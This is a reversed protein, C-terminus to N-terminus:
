LSSCSSCGTHLLGAGAPCLGDCLGKCRSGGPVRSRSGCHQCPRSSLGPAHPGCLDKSGRLHPTAGSGTVSMADSASDADCFQHQQGCRSECAACMSCPHGGAHTAGQDSSQLHTPRVTKYEAAAQQGAGGAELGKSKGLRAGTAAQTGEGRSNSLGDRFGRVLICDHLHAVVLRDGGRPCTQTLSPAPSVLSQRSVHWEKQVHTTVVRHGM